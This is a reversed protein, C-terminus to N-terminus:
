FLFVKLLPSVADLNTSFKTSVPRQHIKQRLRKNARALSLPSFCRPDFAADEHQGLLQRALGPQSSGFFTCVIPKSNFQSVVMQLSMSATCFETPSFTVNICADRDFPIVGELPEVSFAPHRGTVEITYEFQVPATSRMSFAKTLSTGLPLQPFTYKTPFHHSSVIPYAHLPM